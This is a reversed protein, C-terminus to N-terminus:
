DVLWKPKTAEIEKIDKPTNISYWEEDDTMVYSRIKGTGALKRFVTDEISGSEPMYKLIDNSFVYIGNSIYVGDIKSGYKFGTVTKSEDFHVISFKSYFPALVLTAIADNKESHTRHVRGVELNTLEDSNLALFTDDKVHNAIALRFAEATGGEVTHESFETNFGFNKNAKMYDYIKEKKYAVGLVINKIGNKKLWQLIWYLIPKGSVEVLTKPRDSTLPALRSGEGGAIIVATELVM